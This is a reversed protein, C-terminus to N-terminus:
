SSPGALALSAPACPPCSAANPTSPEASSWPHARDAPAVVAPRAPATGAHPTRGVGRGLTRAMLRRWVGEPRAPTTDVGAEHRERQAVRLAHETVLDAARQQELRHATFTSADM